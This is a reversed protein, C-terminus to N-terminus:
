ANTIGGATPTKSKDSTLAQFDPDQDLFQFEAINRHKALLEPGDRTTALRRLLALAEAKNRQGGYTLALNIISYPDDPSNQLAAALDQQATSYQKQLLYYYGRLQRAQVFKQDLKLATDCDTIADQYRGLDGLVYARQWFLYPDEPRLKIAAALAEVAQPLFKNARYVFSHAALQHAEASRENAQVDQRIKQMKEEFDAIQRAMKGTQARAVRHILEKQQEVSKAQRAISDTQAAVQKRVASMDFWNRVAVFGLAAGLVVLAVEILHLFTEFNDRSQQYTKELAQLSQDTPVSAAAQGSSAVASTSSSSAAPSNQTVPSQAKAQAQAVTCPIVSFALVFVLAWALALMRPVRCRCPPLQLLSV